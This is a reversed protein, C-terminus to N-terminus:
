SPESIDEVEVIPLASQGPLFEIAASLHAAAHLLQLRDLLALCSNLIGALQSVQSPSGAEASFKGPM